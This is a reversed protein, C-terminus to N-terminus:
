ERLYLRLGKYDIVADYDALIDAGLVGDVTEFGMALFANNVHSLDIMALVTNEIVLNELKLQNGQSIQMKLNTGGAGTATEETTEPILGFKEMREAEMVTYGAGTDLIFIGEVGNVTANLQLHGAGLMQALKISEYGEELM